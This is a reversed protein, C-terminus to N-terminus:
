PCMSRTMHTAAKVGMHATTPQPSQMPPLAGLGPECRQMAHAAQQWAQGSSSGKWPLREFTDTRQGQAYQNRLGNALLLSGSRGEGGQGVQLATFSSMRM